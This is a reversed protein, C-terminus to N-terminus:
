EIRMWQLEVPVTSAVNTLLWSGRGMTGVLLVDDAADYQMDYVLANPLGTGLQDWTSFSQDARARYVGADTGVVVGDGSANAVYVVVNFNGTAFTTLNGTVDSWNGATAGADTTRFVQDIDVVFAHTADDPDIAIDQIRGSPNGSDRGPYNTAESAPTLVAGTRVFLNDSTGDNGPSGGYYLIQTNGAGSAGYALPTGYFWNPVENAASRVNTFNAGRDLSEWIGNYAAIVLHAGSNDNAKLPTRFLPSIVGVGALYNWTSLSGASTWESRNVGGLNQSSMYRSSCNICGAGPDNPFVEVDGGDGGMWQDWTVTGSTPQYTSGNDQNGSLITNSNTDYSADHQEAASLDGSIEVWNGATGNTILPSTRRFIGGDDVQILDNNADFAMDRSDAHPGTDNQTGNNTLPSVQSGSSLSADVKFLRGSFTDAGVSNPFASSCTPEDACPQRDGGVYVVDHNTPDAGVSLHISCQTGPHIGWFGSSETSGPTDLQTWNQGADGSRFLGNLADNPTASCIAIFVNASNGTGQRGVALEVNGPNGLLADIAASSRKTWTAGTDTSYYVGDSATGNGSVVTFLETSAQPNGQLDLTRGSPLGTGGGGSIQTFTAGTDTSRYIGSYNMAAVITSGRPALGKVSQTSTLGAATLQTWTSGGNTTRLLGTLPGRVGGYASSSGIGAVLIENGITTPGTPDLELASVSLSAEPGMQATWNPDVAGANNTRFVGGNVSGAWLTGAATPHAVVCELAGCIEDNGTTQTNSEGTAPGPGQMSFPGGVTRDQAFLPLTLLTAIFATMTCWLWHPRPGPRCSKM